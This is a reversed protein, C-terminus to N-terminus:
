EDGVLEYGDEDEDDFAVFGDVEVEDASALVPVSEPDVSWEGSSGDVVTLHPASDPAGAVPRSPTPSQSGSLNPIPTPLGWGGRTVQDRAAQAKRMEERAVLRREEPSILRAESIRAVLRDIGDSVEQPDRRNGGRRAILTKVYKLEVDSFMAHPNEGRRFLREWRGERPDGEDDDPSWFYIHSLDRPDYKVRWRGRQAAYRSRKHRRGLLADGDYQVGFIEIGTDQVTRWETPLLEIFLGPDAPM